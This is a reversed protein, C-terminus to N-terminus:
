AADVRAASAGRTARGVSGGAGIASSAHSITSRQRPAEKALGGDACEDDLHAALTRHEGLQDARSIVYENRM